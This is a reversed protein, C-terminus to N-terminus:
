SNIEAQIQALVIEASKLSDKLYDIKGQVRSVAFNFAEDQTPFYNDYEAIRNHRNGKIWVSSESFKEVEIPVIWKENGFKSIYKNVKYWTAM